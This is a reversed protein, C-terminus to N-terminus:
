ERIRPDTPIGTCCSPPITFEDIKPSFDSKELCGLGSATSIFSSDVVTDFCRWREVVKCVGSM